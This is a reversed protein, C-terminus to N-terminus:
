NVGERCVFVGVWLLTLWEVRGNGAKVSCAINLSTGGQDPM